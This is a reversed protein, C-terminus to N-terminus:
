NEHLGHRALLFYNVAITSLNNLCIIRIRVARDAVAYRQDSLLRIGGHRNQPFRQFPIFVAGSTKRIESTIALTRLPGKWTM